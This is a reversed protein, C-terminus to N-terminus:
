EKLVTCTCYHGPETAEDEVKLSQLHFDSGGADDDELGEVLINVDRSPGSAQEGRVCLMAGKHYPRHDVSGSKSIKIRRLRFAFVFPEPHGEGDDSGHTTVSTNRAVDPGFQVPVGLSTLDVGFHLSLGKSKAWSVTSSAGYAIKIGTIMFLKSTGFLWPKNVRMYNQVGEDELCKTVYELKPTFSLTQINSFRWKESVQSELEAKVDGGLGLLELFTAWIGVHGGKKMEMDWSYDPHNHEMLGMGPVLSLPVSEENLPDDALQPGSVINGLQIPGEPSNWTPALFYHKPRLSM